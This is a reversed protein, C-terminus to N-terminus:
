AKKYVRFICDASEFEQYEDESKVPTKPAKSYWSKAESANKFRSRLTEISPVEKDADSMCVTAVIIVIAAFIATLIIM